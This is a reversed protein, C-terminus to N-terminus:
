KIVASVVEELNYTAYLDRMVGPYIGGTRAAEAVANLNVSIQKADTLVDASLMRCQPTTANTTETQATYSSFGTSSRPDGLIMLWNGQTTKGECAQMYRDYGQSFRLVLTQTSSLTAGFMAVARQEMTLPADPLAPRTDRAAGTGAALSSSSQRAENTFQPAVAIGRSRAELSAKDAARSRNLLEALERDAKEADRALQDARANVADISPDHKAPSTSGTPEGTTSAPTNRPGEPTGFSCAAAFLASAVVLADVAVRLSAMKEPFSICGAHRKM